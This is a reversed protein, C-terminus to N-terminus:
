GERLFQISSIPADSWEPWIEEGLTQQLHFAEAIIIAHKEDLQVQASISGATTLVSLLGALWCVVSTRQKCM